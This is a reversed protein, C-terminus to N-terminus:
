GFSQEMLEHKGFNLAYKDDPRILKKKSLDTTHKIEEKDYQMVYCSCEPCNPPFFIDWFPDDIHLKINNLTKCIKCSADNSTYYRLYPFESRARQLQKWSSYGSAMSNFAYFESELIDKNYEPVILLM